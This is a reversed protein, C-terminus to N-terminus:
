STRHSLRSRRWAACAVRPAGVRSYQQATRSTQRRACKFVDALGGLKTRDVTTFALAFEKFSVAGDGSPDMHKMLADRDRLTFKAGIKRFIILMKDATISYADDYDINSFAMALNLLATPFTEGTIEEEFMGAAFQYCSMQMLRPLPTLVTNREAASLVCAGYAPRRAPPSM